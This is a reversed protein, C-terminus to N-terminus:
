EERPANLYQSAIFSNYIGELDFREKLDVYVNRFEIRLGDLIGITEELLLSKINSEEVMTSTALMNWSLQDFLQVLFYINLADTQKKVKEKLAQDKDGASERETRAINLREFVPKFIMGVDVFSNNIKDLESNFTQLKSEYDDPVKEASQVAPTEKDMKISTPAGEILNILSEQCKNLQALINSQPLYDVLHISFSPKKSDKVIRKAEERKRKDPDKWRSLARHQFSPKERLFFGNPVFKMADTDIVGIYDREQKRKGNISFCYAFYVYITGRITQIQAHAPLNHVKSKDFSSM